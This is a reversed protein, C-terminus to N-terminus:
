SVLETSWLEHRPGAKPTNFDIVSIWEWLINDEKLEAVRCEWKVRAGWGM